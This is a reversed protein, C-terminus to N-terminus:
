DYSWVGSDPDTRQRVRGLSDYVQTTRTNAQGSTTTALLRGLGDYEFEFWLRPNSTGEHHEKRTVRGFADVFVKRAHGAPDHVETRVGRYFTRTERGDPPNIEHVRGLPDSLTPSGNLAYSYTTAEALSAPDVGLDGTKVYDALVHRVRGVADYFTHGVVVTQLTTTAGIVRETTTLRKRGLADFYVREVTQGGYVAPKPRRVEVYSLKGENSSAAPDGWHYAYEATPQAPCDDDPKAECTLRGLADYAYRTTAGNSDTVRTRKGVVIDWDQTVQHLASGQIAEEKDPYLGHLDGNEYYSESTTGNPDKTTLVNGYPDYTMWVRPDDADGPDTDLTTRILTVNGQTVRAPTTLNDYLFHKATLPVFGAGNWSEVRVWDPRERVSWSSSDPDAWHTVTNVQGLELNTECVNGPVPLVPPESSTCGRSCTKTVRGYDDPADNATALCQQNPDADGGGDPDYEALRHEALFVQTRSLSARTQWVFRERRVLKGGPLLGAYREDSEIRGATFDEQDFTVVRTNGAMDIETVTRFGRFERSEADFRGGAYAIEKVIEHGADICDNQTRDFVDVGPDPTCLGDTKRVATVVWTVFPLDSQEDGGTNDFRSSPTYEVETVGGVGNFARLLLGPRVWPEGAERPAGYRITWGGTALPTTADVLDALGDGNWDLVDVRTRGGKSDRRISGDSNGLWPRGTAELGTGTNLRVTWNARLIGQSSTFTGDWLVHDPLGDGNMDVFEQYTRQTDKDIERVEIGPLDLLAGFDGEGQNVKIESIGTGNDRVVVDVLGDGNFDFVDGFALRFGAENKEKHIARGWSAHELDPALEFWGEGSVPDVGRNLYVHRHDGSGSHADVLDLLGDGNFDVLRRRTNFSTGNENPGGGERHDFRLRARGGNSEPGDFLPVGKWPVYTSRFGCRTPASPNGSPECYGEYMEWEMQGQEIEDKSGNVFDPIGDGTLDVADRVTFVKEGEDEFHLKQVTGNLFPDGPPIKWPKAVTAIGLESGHYVNWDNNAENAAILDLFGDGDLDMVTRYLEGDTEEVARFQEPTNSQPPIYRDQCDAPGLGLAQCSHHAFDDTSYEFTQAPMREAPSVDQTEDYVGCLLTRSTDSCSYDLRYTRKEDGDVFVHIESVVHEWLEKVGRRYSLSPPTSRPTKEFDVRFVHAQSAGGGYAISTPYTAKSGLKEYAIDVRNGNPDEISTLAWVTTYACIQGGDYYYFDDDHFQGEQKRVRAGSSGGFTYTMGARDKVVWFNNQGQGPSAVADIFGDDAEVRYTNSSGPVPVLEHAGGRLSLVFDDTHDNLSGPQACRPVGYKTSREISGLPLSWGHGFPGDGGSSSYVLKLDPTANKRGPPILIPIALTFNGTFLDAEPSQALGGLTQLGEGGFDGYSSTTDAHAVVTASLFAFFALVCPALSSAAPPLPAPRLRM